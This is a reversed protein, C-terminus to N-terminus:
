TLGSGGIVHLEQSSAPQDALIPLARSILARVADLQLSAAHDERKDWVETIWVTDPAAEEQSVLYLRCHKTTAVVAAAELLIAALEKGKGPKAQLKGHRAYLRLNNDEM